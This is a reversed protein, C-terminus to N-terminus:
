KRRHYVTCGFDTRSTSPDYPRRAQETRSARPSVTTASTRRFSDHAVIHEPQHRVWAQTHRKGHVKDDRQVLHEAGGM